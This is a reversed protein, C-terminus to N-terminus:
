SPCANEINVTVTKPVTTKTNEKQYCNRPGEPYEEDWECEREVYCDVDKSQPVTESNQKYQTETDPSSANHRSKRQWCDFVATPNTSDSSRACTRADSDALCPVSKPGEHPCDARIANQATDPLLAMACLCVGILSIFSITKQFTM